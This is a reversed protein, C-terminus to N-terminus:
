GEDLYSYALEFYRKATKIAEKKEEESIAPDDIKFSIVKGRVYARYIKYFTLVDMVGSDGSHKVYFEMLKESFDRKGYYDLDMALFAIDVATDSYRFRENFEICDFVIVDEDTICIHEMHLDGHCDRIRGDKIRKNIVDARNRYFNETYEKLEGFQKRSITKGVYKETQQFNEDTNFKITDIRGYKEIEPSKEASNHFVAIKEAVRDLMEERLEGKLLLNKMLREMPLRKMWVAYDVTRGEGWLWCKGEREVVPIVDIYVEPSLRRNLILEQECYYKRRELTTFDLFGFNVPKKIKYVLRDTLFVFSIHTQILEIQSVKEPYAEPNLLDEVLSM